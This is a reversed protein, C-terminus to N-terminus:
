PVALNLSKEGFQQQPPSPTITITTAIQLPTELLNPINSGRLLWTPLLM